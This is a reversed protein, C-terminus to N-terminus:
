ANVYGIASTLFAAVVLRQATPRRVCQKGCYAFSATTKGPLTFSSCGELRKDHMVGGRSTFSNSEGGIKKTALRTKIGTVGSIEGNTM